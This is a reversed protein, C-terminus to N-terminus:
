VVHRTEESDMGHFHEAADPEFYAEDVAPTARRASAPACSWTGAILPPYSRYDQESSVRSAEAGRTM